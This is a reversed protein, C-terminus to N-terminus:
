SPRPRCIVHRAPCSNLDSLAKTLTMIMWVALHGDVGPCGKEDKRFENRSEVSVPCSCHIHLCLSVKSFKKLRLCLHHQETSRNPPPSYHSGPNDRRRTVGCFVNRTCAVWLKIISPTFYHVRAVVTSSSVFPRRREMLFINKHWRSLKGSKTLTLASVKHVM